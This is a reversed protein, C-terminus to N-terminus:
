LSRYIERRHAVAYLTLLQNPHDVWLLIRYDGVRFKHIGQLDPPPNQIAQTALEPHTALRDIKKMIRSALSRDLKNFDREFRPTLEIRYVRPIQPQRTGM